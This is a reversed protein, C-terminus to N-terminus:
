ASAGEGAMADDYVAMAPGGLGEMAEGLPQGPRHRDQIRSRGFSPPAEPQVVNADLWDRAAGAPILLRSGGCVKSAQLEGNAIARYIAKRSLGAAAAIEAPTYALRDIV